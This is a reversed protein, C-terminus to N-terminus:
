SAPPGAVAPGVIGQSLLVGVILISVGGLLAFGMVMEEMDMLSKSDSSYTDALTQPVYMPHGQPFNLLNNSMDYKPDGVMISVNSMLDAPSFGEKLPEDEGRVTAKAGTAVATAAASMSTQGSYSVFGVGEEPKQINYYQPSSM